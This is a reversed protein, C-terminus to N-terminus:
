LYEVLGLKKMEELTAQREQPDDSFRFTNELAVVSIEEHEYSEIEEPSGPLSDAKGTWRMLSCDGSAAQRQGWLTGFLWVPIMIILSFFAEGEGLIFISALPIATRLGALLLAQRGHWRVFLYQKNLTPTLLVLHWLASGMVAVPATILFKRHYDDICSLYGQPCILDFALPDVLLYLILLTPVTLIPSLWLWRYWKRATQLEMQDRRIRDPNLKISNNM